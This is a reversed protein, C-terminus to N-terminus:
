TAVAIFKDPSKDFTERCRACCFYYTVSRYDSQHRASGVDVIMGCVPDLADTSSVDLDRNGGRLSSAEAVPRADGAGLVTLRPQRNKSAGEAVASGPQPIKNGKARIIEALISVAIEEPLSASIDLGAPFKVRQLLEPALGKQALYELVKRGKVKSAVFAIYPARLALAQEIAEEDDEGQTSVVVYTMATVKVGDVRMDNVVAAEAPFDAMLARPTIVTVAYKIDLALRALTQAVPSRGFILIQPRPLVPEIYIDLAGGSHCEMTYASIGPEPQDSHPSIRILRPKGDEISCLAERIVTPQACGGGIWGWISRDARVIARDGPKGSIPPESRVVTAVAFSEGRRCLDEAKKIFDDFM